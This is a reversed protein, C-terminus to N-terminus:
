GDRRRKKSSIVKALTEDGFLRERFVVSQVEDLDRLATGSGTYAAWRVSASVFQCRWWASEMVRRSLATGM